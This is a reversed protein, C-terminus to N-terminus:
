KKSRVVVSPDEDERASLLASMDRWGKDVAKDYDFTMAQGPITQRFQQWGVFNGSVEKGDPLPTAQHELPSLHGPEGDGKELGGLLRNYLETDKEVSPNAGDHTRYSVRACRAVSCVKQTELPLSEREAASVYPLHWEGSKCLVPPSGKYYLDAMKWALHQIHPEADPHCRLAFFNEYSTSSVIVSIFSYPELVRNVLQKHLGCLEYLDTATRAAVRAGHSWLAVAAKLTGADTVEKRSQMGPENMGWYLPFFPDVSISAVMKSVPIARSSSANRSFARHTMLESHIIRPYSLQFTTLRVGAESISDEVIKVETKM